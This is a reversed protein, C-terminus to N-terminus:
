GSLYAEAGNLPTDGKRNRHFDLDAGAQILVEVLPLEKGKKLTSDFLM